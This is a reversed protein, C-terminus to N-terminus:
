IKLYLYQKYRRFGVNQYAHKAAINNDIVHISAWGSSQILQKTLTSVISQAYGRRRYAQSTAIFMIHSGISSAAAVGISALTQGVKIGVWFTDNFMAKLVDATMDNWHTPYAERMLRAVAEADDVGLRQPPTTITIHEEGQKLSMLTMVEALAPKPFRQLVTDNCNWPASVEYRGAGLGGLLLGVAESTGRVQVIFGNYVLMVGEIEDDENLALTFQSQARKHMYDFLFFYCDLPDQNAYQLFKNENEVTLPVTKLTSAM